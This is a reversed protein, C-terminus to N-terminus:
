APEAEESLEARLAAFARKLHTKVSAVELGMRRAATQRDLGELYCFTIAERQRQPLGKIAEQVVLRALHRDPDGEVSDPKREAWRLMRTRQRNLSRRKNLALNKAVTTVYSECNLPAEFRALLTIMTESAVDMAEAHDDLVQNAARYAIGALANHEAPAPKPPEQSPDELQPM